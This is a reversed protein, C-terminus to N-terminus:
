WTPLMLYFGSTSKLSPVGHSIPMELPCKTM